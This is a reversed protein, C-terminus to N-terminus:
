DLTDMEITELRDSGGIREDYRRLKSYPQEISDDESLERKLPLSTDQMPVMDPDTKRRALQKARKKLVSEVPQKFSWYNTNLAENLKNADM